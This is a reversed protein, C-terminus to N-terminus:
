ELRDRLLDFRESAARALDDVGDLGRGATEHALHDIRRVLEVAHQLHRARHIERANGRQHLRHVRGLLLGPLDRGPLAVRAVREARREAARHCRRPRGALRGDPRLLRHPVVLVEGDQVVAIRRCRETRVLQVAEDRQDGAVHHARVVRHDAVRLRDGRDHRTGIERRHEGHEILFLLFIKLLIRVRQDLDDFERRTAEVHRRVDEGVADIIVRASLATAFFIGQLAQRARQTVPM